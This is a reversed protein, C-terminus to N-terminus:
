PTQGETGRPRWLLGRGPAALLSIAAAGTALLVIAPGTALGQVGASLLTGLLGAGAGVGCAILVMLGFRNTWQRAAAAPAILLAVMLVVGTVQLGLVVTAAIVLTMGAEVFGVRVGAAMAFERDFLTLKVQTWFLGLMAALVLAVGGIWRVDDATMAAAQGFLFSSLGAAAGGQAQIISLLALGAAFFASLAVGMAADAKLVTTQRLVNILLAAAAGAVLAGLLMAPLDRGGAALFGLCIGPLAAHAIADALLSERRLMALCGAAGATAGILMAGLAVVRVTGSQFLLALAEM